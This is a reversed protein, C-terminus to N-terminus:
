RTISTPSEQTLDVIRSPHGSPPPGGSMYVAVNRGFVRRAEAITRVPAEGHRNASTATIPGGLQRALERALPHDPVRVGITRPSALIPPALHGHSWRSPPLLATVPGPLMERIWGRTRTTLQVYPEIELTSSFGVSLPQGAPRDKLPLVRDVARPSDARAGLGWLTDTPYVIVQDARLATLARSVAIAM